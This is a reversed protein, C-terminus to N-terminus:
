AASSISGCSPISRTRSPPTTTIVSSLGIIQRMGPSLRGISDCVAPIFADGNATRTAEYKSRKVKERSGIPDDMARNTKCWVSCVSVDIEVDGDHASMLLDPM